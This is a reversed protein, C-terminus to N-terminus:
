KVVHIILNQISIYNDYFGVIRNKKNLYQAQNLVSVCITVLCFILLMM